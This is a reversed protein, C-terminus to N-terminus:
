RDRIPFWRSGGELRDPHMSASGDTVPQSQAEVHQYMAPAPKAAGPGNGGAQQDLKAHARFVRDSLHTVGPGPRNFCWLLCVMHRTTRRSPWGDRRQGGVVDPVPSESGEEAWRDTVGNTRRELELM